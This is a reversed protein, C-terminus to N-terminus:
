QIALQWKSYIATLDIGSAKNILLPFEEMTFARENEKSWHYLYRLVDKMSKKGNSKEKLYNDMEIAMMAGRSFVAMGLRFDTAYMLSAEQSLEQLSMKKILPDAEYINAYFRKKLRESKLEEYPLFWMFGENFWINNIIPPIEKVFPSYADGYCRLPIFAHAMHHLYTAMTGIVDQQNMAQARFESTDGFFTSSQLHEMGFPPVSGPELPLAKRLLISYQKFPLEGFYNNLIELSMTGQKGYDDLYEDGTECYSAIFLPVIGKFEKVRLGPGILIQGDALTYYNDTRFTLSGKPMSVSPQNTSFIPWQDFTQVTCQVPEQETEDIWGFISYNLIGAFGSRIISADTPSLGKEMKRLDIEYEIRIISEGPDTEYWRPAGNDDKIMAIKKGNSNIAYLQEVFGDYNIISYAGPISRPMIFNLPARKEKTLQISIKIRQTSSDKYTLSYILQASTNLCLVALSFLVIIYRM